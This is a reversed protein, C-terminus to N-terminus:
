GHAYEPKAAIALVSGGFPLRIGARLLGREFTTSARCVAEVIAPQPAVDSGSGSPLLKRTAVMLPFLLMNWYSAYMPRFGAARLLGVIQRKTYRRANYVAADHRSMLWRYAPLNLILIGGAGLCRHFQALARAEDVDRHCLVDVCVITAFAADAFPLANVSGACVPKGSKEAAWRCATQNADLGIARAEPIERALRALFGGTGCGADLLEGGGSLRRYLMLLNAHIAAFWWM